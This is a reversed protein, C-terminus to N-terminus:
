SKTCEPLEVWRRRCRRITLIKVRCLSQERQVVPVDVKRETFKWLKGLSSFMHRKRHKRSPKLRHPSPPVDGNAPLRVHKQAARASGADHASAEAASSSDGRKEPRKPSNSGAETGGRAISIGMFQEELIEFPSNRNAQDRPQSKEKTIKVIAADEIQETM